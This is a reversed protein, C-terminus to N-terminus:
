CQKYSIQFSTNKYFRLIEYVKQRRGGARWVRYMGGLYKWIRHVGRVGPALRWSEITVRITLLGLKSGDVLFTYWISPLYM